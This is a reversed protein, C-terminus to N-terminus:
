EIFLLILILVVLVVLLNLYHILFVIPLLSLVLLEKNMVGQKVGIPVVVFFDWLVDTMKLCSPFIGNKCM